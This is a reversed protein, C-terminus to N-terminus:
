FDNIRLYLCLMGSLNPLTQINIKIENKHKCINNKDNFTRYCPSPFYTPFVTRTSTFTKNFNHQTICSKNNNDNFNTQISM